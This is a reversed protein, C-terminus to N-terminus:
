AEGAQGFYPFSEIKEKSSNKIDTNLRKNIISIKHEIMSTLEDRNLIDKDVILDIVSALLVEAEMLRTNLGIIATNQQEIIEKQTKRAM